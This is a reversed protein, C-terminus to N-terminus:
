TKLSTNFESWPYSAPPPAKFTVSEQTVPHFFSLQYAFLAIFSSSDRIGEIYLKDGIIPHGITSLQVRIQHARGTKLTVEILTMNIKVERILFSLEAYKSNPVDNNYAISRREEESKVLYHKLIMKPTNIEGKVIALYKKSFKHAQIQKSLRAAAKSTKAFVMVGGVNKDLRHVLGVFVNGPKDYKQKLYKKLETLIDDDGTIDAQSLLGFPKIAVIIHNDEFLIKIM